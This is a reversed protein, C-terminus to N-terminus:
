LENGDIPMDKTGDAETDADDDDKRFKDCGPHLAYPDRKHIELKEENIRLIKKYFKIRPYDSHIESMAERSICFSGAHLICKEVYSPSNSLVEKLTKGYFKGFNLKRDMGYIFM